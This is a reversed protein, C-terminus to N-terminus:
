MNERRDLETYMFKHESRQDVQLQTKHVIILIFRDLNKWMFDAGMWNSFCLLKFISEKAIYIELKKM